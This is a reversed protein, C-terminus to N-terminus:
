SVGQLETVWDAIVDMVDNHIEEKSPASKRRIDFSHDGGEVLHLTAAPMRALVPRLEEEGGFADRSGQIVLTPVAVRPLHADRVKDPRGPPHLPYGLAIVGAVDAAPPAEDAEPDPSAAIHTAIRGGMSKGGIFLPRGESQEQVAEVVARYCAELKPARDPARRGQETYLFNFTVVEVGRVALGHAFAVMFPHTQPAGAGHALILTARADAAPYATATTSDRNVAISFQEMGRCPPGEPGGHRRDAETPRAKLGAM